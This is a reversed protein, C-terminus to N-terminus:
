EDLIWGKTEPDNARSEDYIYRKGNSWYTKEEKEGPKTYSKGDKSDIFSTGNPLADYEERTTIIYDDSEGEGKPPVGLLDLFDQIEAVKNEASKKDKILRPDLANRKEQGLRLRLFRDISRARTRMLNAHDFFEPAIRIEKLIRTMETVPNKENVSLTRALESQAALLSQRADVVNEDFKAGGWALPVGVGAQFWSVPGTGDGMIDWLTKEVKAREPVNTLDEEVPTVTDTLRNRIHPRGTVPNIELIRLEDEITVAKDKAAAPDMGMGVLLQTADTIRQQRQGGRETQSKNNLYDKAYQDYQPKTIQGVAFADALQKMYGTAVPPSEDGLVVTNLPDNEDVANVNGNYNEISYKRKVSGDLLANETAADYPVNPLEIGNMKAWAQSVKSVAENPDLGNTSANRAAKQRLQFLQLQQNVNKNQAATADDVATRSRDYKTQEAATNRDYQEKEAAIERVKNADRQALYNDLYSPAPRRPIGAPIISAM